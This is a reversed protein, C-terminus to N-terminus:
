PEGGLINRSKNRSLVGECARMRCINIDKKAEEQKTNFDKKYIQV